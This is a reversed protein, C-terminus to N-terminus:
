RTRSIVNTDRHKQGLTLEMNREVSGKFCAKYSLRTYSHRQTKVGQSMSSNERTDNEQVHRRARLMLTNRPSPVLISTVNTGGKYHLMRKNNKLIKLFILFSL